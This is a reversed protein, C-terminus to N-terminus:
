YTYPGIQTVKAKERGALFEESNTVNFFFYQMYVPPPPNIWGDLVRSNEALTIE